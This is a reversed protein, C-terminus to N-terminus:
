RFTVKKRIREYSNVPPFSAACTHAGKKKVFFSFLFMMVQNKGRFVVNKSSFLYHENVFAHLSCFGNKNSNYPLMHMMWELFHLEFM